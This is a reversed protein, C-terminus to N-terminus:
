LKSMINRLHNLCEGPVDTFKFQNNIEKLIVIGKDNFKLIYNENDKELTINNKVVQKFLLFWLNGLVKNDKLRKLSESDLDFYENSWTEFDLDTRVCHSIFDYIRYRYANESEERTIEDTENEKEIQNIEIIENSIKQKILLEQYLKDLESYVELQINPKLWDFEYIELYYEGEEISEVILDEDDFYLEMSPKLNGFKMQYLIFESTKSINDIYERMSVKSSNNGM